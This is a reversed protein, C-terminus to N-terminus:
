SEYHTMTHSGEASEDSDAAGYRAVLLFGYFLDQARVPDCAHFWHSMVILCTRSVYVVHGCVHTMDFLLWYCDVLSV